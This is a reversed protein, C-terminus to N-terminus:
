HMIASSIDQKQWFKLFYKTTNTVCLKHRLEHLRKLNMFGHERAPM